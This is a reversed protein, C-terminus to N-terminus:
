SWLLIAVVGAAALIGGGVLLAKAKEAPERVAVDGSEATVVAQEAAKVAEGIPALHTDVHLQALRQDEGGLPEAFESVDDIVAKARGNIEGVRGQQMVTLYPAAVGNAFANAADVVAKADMAMVSLLKLEDFYPGVEAISTSLDPNSVIGREIEIANMESDIASLAADIQSQIQAAQEETVAGLDAGGVAAMEIGLNEKSVPGQLLVRALPSPRGIRGVPAFSAKYFIM